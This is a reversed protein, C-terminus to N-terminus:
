SDLPSHLLHKKAGSVGVYVFAEKCKQLKCIGLGHGLSSGALPTQWPGQRKWLNVFCVCRVVADWSRGEWSSSPIETVSFRRIRSPAESEIRRRIKSELIDDDQLM